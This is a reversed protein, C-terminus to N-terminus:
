GGIYLRAQLPNITPACPDDCVPDGCDATVNVILNEVELPEYDEDCGCSEEIVLEEYFYFVFAVKVAPARTAEVRMGGYQTPNYHPFPRWNVLAQILQKEAVEIDNAALYESESGRGDLQAIFTVARPVIFSDQDQDINPRQVPREVTPVVLLYPLTLLSWHEESMQRLVLKVNRNFITGSTRLRRVVMNYLGIGAFREVENTRADM